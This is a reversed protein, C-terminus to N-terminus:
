DHEVSKRNRPFDELFVNELLKCSKVCRTLLTFFSRTDRSIPLYLAIFIKTTFHFTTESILLTNSFSISPHLPILFTILSLNFRPPNCTALHYTLLFELLFYSSSYVLWTFWAKLLHKKWHNWHSNPFPPYWRSNKSQRDHTCSSPKVLKM